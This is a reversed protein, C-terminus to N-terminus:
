HLWLCFSSSYHILVSPFIPFLAFHLHFDLFDNCFGLDWSLTSSIGCAVCIPFPFFSFYWLHMDNNGGHHKISALHYADKAGFILSQNSCFFLLCLPARSGCNGTIFLAPTTHHLPHNLFSFLTPPSANFQSSLLTPPSRNLHQLFSFTRSFNLFSLLDHLFQSFLSFISSSTHFGLSLFCKPSFSDWRDKKKAREGGTM